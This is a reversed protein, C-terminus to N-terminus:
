RLCTFSVIYMMLLSIAHLYVPIELLSCTINILSYYLGVERWLVGAPEKIMYWITQFCHNPSLTAAPILFKMSYNTWIRMNNETILNFTKYKMIM